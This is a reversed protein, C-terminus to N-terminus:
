MYLQLTSYIRRQESPTSYLSVHYWSWVSYLTIMFVQSLTHSWISRSASRWNEWRNILQYFMATPHLLPIKNQMDSGHLMNQTVPWFSDPIGKPFVKLLNILGNDQCAFLLMKLASLMETYNINKPGQITQCDYINVICLTWIINPSM